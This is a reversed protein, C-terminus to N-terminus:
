TAFTFIKRKVFINAVQYEQKGQLPIYGLVRTKEFVCQLHALIRKV